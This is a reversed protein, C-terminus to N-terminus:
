ASSPPTMQQRMLGCCPQQQVRTRLSGAWGSAQPLHVFSVLKSRLCCALCPPLLRLQVQQTGVEFPWQLEDHAIASVTASLAGGKGLQLLDPLTEQAHYCVKTTPKVLVACVADLLTAGGQQLERACHTGACWLLCPLFM